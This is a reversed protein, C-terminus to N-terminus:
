QQQQQQQPTKWRSTGACHADWKIKGGEEGQHWVRMEIDALSFFPVICLFLLSGIIIYDDDDDDATADGDRKGKQGEEYM